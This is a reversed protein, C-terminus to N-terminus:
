ILLKGATDSTFTESRDAESCLFPPAIVQAAKKM